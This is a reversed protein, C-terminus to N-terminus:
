HPIQEEYVRYVFCKFVKKFSLCEHQRAGVIPSGADPHPIVFLFSRMGRFGDGFVRGFGNDREGRLTMASGEWVMMGCGEM